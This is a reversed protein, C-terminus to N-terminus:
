RILSQRYNKLLTLCDFDNHLRLQNGLINPIISDYNRLGNPLVFLSELILSAVRHRGDESIGKATGLIFREFSNRQDKLLKLNQPHYACGLFVVVKGFGYAESLDASAQEDLLTESYTRVIGSIEKMTATQPIAGFQLGNLGQANPLPGITGYPFVVKIRRVLEYAEPLTIHYATSIWLAIAQQFCRDYNFSIVRLKELEETIRGLPVSQFTINAFEDYWTEGINRRDFRAKHPDHVFLPSEREARLILESIALKACNAVKPEVSNSDVYNDISRWLRVGESIKRCFRLHDNLEERDPYAAQLISFFRHDGNTLGHDFEFYTIAAIQEALDTGLPMKADFSAGAGLVLTTNEKLM